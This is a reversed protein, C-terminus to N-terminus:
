LAATSVPLSRASRGPLDSEIFLFCSYFFLLPLLGLVLSLAHPLFSGRLYVSMILPLPFCWGQYIVSSTSRRYQCHCARTVPLPGGPYPSTDPAFSLPFPLSVSCTERRRSCPDFFRAAKWDARPTCVLNFLLLSVQSLALLM